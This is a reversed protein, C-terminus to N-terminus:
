GLLEPSLMWRLVGAPMHGAGDIEFAFLAGPPVSVCPERAGLFCAVAEGILPQHAVLLLSGRDRRMRVEQWVGSPPAEPALATSRIFGARYGLVEAAIQGTQIARQLPSTLILGPTGIAPAARELLGKLKTRGEDTLSRQEDPIGAGPEALGHRLLYIRM